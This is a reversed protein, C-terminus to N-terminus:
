KTTLLDWHDKVFEAFRLLSLLSIYPQHLDIDSDHGHGSEDRWYSIMDTYRQYRDQIHKPTKGFVLKEINSRGRSTLYKKLVENENEIKFAVALLISETAAGCMVCCALYNGTQYCNVAERARRFYNNGFLSNFTSFIQIFRSPEAPLLDSVEYRSLWDHGYLTISFGTGVGLESDGTRYKYRGLRLIGKRCLDWAAECFPISHDEKETPTIPDFSSVNRHQTLYREIVYPLYVDYGFNNLRNNELKFNKIIEILFDVIFKEAHDVMIDM